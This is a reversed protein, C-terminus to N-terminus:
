YTSYFRFIIKIFSNIENKARAIAVNMKAKARLAVENFKKM